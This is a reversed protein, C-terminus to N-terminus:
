EDRVAGKSGVVLPTSWWDKVVGTGGEWVAHYVVELYPNERDSIWLRRVNRGVAGGTRKVARASFEYWRLTRGPVDIPVVSLSLGTVSAIQEGDGTTRVIASDRVELHLRRPADEFLAATDSVDDLAAIREFRAPLWGDATKVANLEAGTVELQMEGDLQMGLRIERASFGGYGEVVRARVGELVLDFPLGIHAGGIELDLGTKKQLTRAIWERGAVTRVVVTAATLIVAMSVAIIAVFGFVSPRRRRPEEFDEFELDTQSM